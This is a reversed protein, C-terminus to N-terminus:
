PDSPVNESIKPKIRQATISSYAQCAQMVFSLRVFSCISLGVSPHVFPCFLILTTISFMWKATNFFLHFQSNLFKGQILIDIDPKFQFTWGDIITPCAILFAPLWTVIVFIIKIIMM